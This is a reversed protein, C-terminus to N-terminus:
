IRDVSLVNNTRTPLFFKKLIIRLYFIGIGFRKFPVSRDVNLMKTFKATNEPTVDHM